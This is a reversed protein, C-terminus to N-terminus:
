GAELLGLRSVNHIPINEQNGNGTVGVSEDIENISGQYKKIGRGIGLLIRHNVGKTVAPDFEM